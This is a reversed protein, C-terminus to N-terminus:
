CIGVIEVLHGYQPIYLIGSSINISGVTVSTSLQVGCIGSCFGDGSMYMIGACPGAVNTRVMAFHYGKHDFSVTDGDVANGTWLQEFHAKEALSANLQNTEYCSQCFSCARQIIILCGFFSLRTM